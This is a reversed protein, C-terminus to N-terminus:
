ENNEAGIPTFGMCFLERARDTQGTVYLYGFLTELGTARRYQSPTAHRPVGSHVCNRGRKFMDTEDETFSDSMNELAECQAPATVYKLAEVSPTKVGRRVLMERVMVEIVSDGLYALTAAPILRAEEKSIAEKPLILTTDSM